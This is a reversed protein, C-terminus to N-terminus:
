SALLKGLRAQIQQEIAGKFMMAALPLEATTKVAAHEVTVNGRVAMGLAKFRFSLTHDDWTQELDTVADGFAATVAASEDMLRRAAEEQGLSHSVVLSLKPM